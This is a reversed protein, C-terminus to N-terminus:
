EASELPPASASARVVLDAYEPHRRVYETVFPCVLVVPLHEARAFELAARALMGGIGRGELAAPVETHLITLKDSARRYQLFAVAGDVVVRFLEAAPDHQVDPRM